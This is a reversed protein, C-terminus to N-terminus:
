SEKGNPIAVRAKGTLVRNGDERDLWLDCNAVFEDDEVSIDTVRGSAILTDQAFVNALFRVYVSRIKTADGIWEILANIVYAMNNPGQNVPRNGMGLKKVAEVDWHIRNPDRLLVAMTKMKEADVSEIRWGPIQTGVDIQM